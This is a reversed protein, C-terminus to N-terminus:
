SAKPPPTATDPHLGRLPRTPLPLFAGRAMPRVEGSVRDMAPLASACAMTCEIASGKQHHPHSGQDPCHTMVMPAMPQAAAPAAMGLPMVLLAILALLRLFRAM